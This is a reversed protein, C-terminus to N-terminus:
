YANKMPVRMQSDEVKCCADLKDKIIKMAQPVNKAVYMKDEYVPSLSLLTGNKVTSDNNKNSEKCTIVFGGNESSAISILECLHM